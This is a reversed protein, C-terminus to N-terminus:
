CSIVVPHDRRHPQCPLYPKRCPAVQMHEMWLVHFSFSSLTIDGPCKWTAPLLLFYIFLEAGNGFSMLQFRVLGTRPELTGDHWSIIYMVCCVPQVHGLLWVDQDYALFARSRGENWEYSVLKSSSYRHGHTNALPCSSFYVCIYCRACSQTVHMGLRRWGRGRSTRACWRMSGSVDKGVNLSGTLWVVAPYVLCPHVVVCQRSDALELILTRDDM